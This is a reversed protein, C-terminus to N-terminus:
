FWGQRRFYVVLVALAALQTGVGLGLFAPLGGVHDVMWGFNQGFFGTVFTLPLFVTAIAALQKMVANLRNSVTSLYIDTVGTLLDRYSDIVDTLRVLHDYVDRFHREAEATMAPLGAIGHAVSAMLDRQPSIVKRLTVLRRKMLFVRRLQEQSPQEFIGEEVADIFDDFDGLLPFFSDVLADIVRYLVFAPEGLGAPRRAHRERAERFAPCSDRRVTILFRETYFCHVEVLDDEDPAAGYVVLFAFDDYDDFKPRQGFHMADEVALPHFGFVEGLLAVDDDPLGHLDLWFFDDRGRLRELGARDVSVEATGSADILHSAM